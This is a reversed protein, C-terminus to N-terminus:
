QLIVQGARDDLKGKLSAAEKESEELRRSLDAVRAAQDNKGTERSATLKNITITDQKGKEKEAALTTACVKHTDALQSYVIPKILKANEKKLSSIKEKM